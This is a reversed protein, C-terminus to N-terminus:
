WGRGALQQGETIESIADCSRVNGRRSKKIAAIMAPDPM